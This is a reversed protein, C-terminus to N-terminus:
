KLTYGKM